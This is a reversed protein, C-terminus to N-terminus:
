LALSNSLMESIAEGKDALDEMEEESSELSQSSGASAGPQLVTSVSNSTRHM